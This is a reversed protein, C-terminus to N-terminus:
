RRESAPDAPRYAGCAPFGPGSRPASRRDCAAPWLGVLHARGRGVPRIAIPVDRHATRRLVEDHQLHQHGVSACGGPDAEGSRQREPFVSGTSVSLFRRWNKRRAMDLLNATGGINANIAALPQPRAYKENPVAASHICSNSQVHTACSKSPPVMPSTARCGNCKAASLACMATAIRRGISPSSPQAPPLRRGFSRAAWM